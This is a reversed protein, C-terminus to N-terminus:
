LIILGAPLATLSKEGFPDQFNAWPLSAVALAARPLPISYHHGSLARSNDRRM